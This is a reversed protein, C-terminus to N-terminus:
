KGSFIRIKQQNLISISSNKHQFNQKYNKSNKKTYIFSNPVCLIFQKTAFKTYLKQQQIPFETYLTQYM